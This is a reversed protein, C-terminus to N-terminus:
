ASCACRRLLAGGGGGGTIAFDFDVAVVVAVATGTQLLCSAFVLERIDMRVRVGDAM